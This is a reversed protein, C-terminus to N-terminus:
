RTGQPRACARRPPRSRRCPLRVGAPAGLGLQASRVHVSNGDFEASFEVGPVVEVGVVSGTALAEPLGDTTDHDTLAVVDLGAAAAAAVLGDPTDTGDSVASHTHLDIRM